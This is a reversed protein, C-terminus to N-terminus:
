ESILYRYEGSKEERVTGDPLEIVATVRRFLDSPDYGVVEAHAVGFEDCEQLHVSGYGQQFFIM